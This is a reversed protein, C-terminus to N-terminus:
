EENQRNIYSIIIIRMLVESVLPSFTGPTITTGMEKSPVTNCSPLKCQLTDVLSVALQEQKTSNDDTLDPTIGYAKNFVTATKIANNIEIDTDTGLTLQSPMM